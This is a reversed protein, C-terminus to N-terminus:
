IDRKDVDNLVLILDVCSNLLIKM